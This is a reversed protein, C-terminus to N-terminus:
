LSSSSEASTVQELQYTNSKSLLQGRAEQQPLAPQPQEYGEQQSSLEFPSCAPAFFFAADYRGRHVSQSRGVVLLVGGRRKKEPEM